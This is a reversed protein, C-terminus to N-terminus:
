LVQEICLLAPGDSAFLASMAEDLQGFGGDGTVAVIPAEPAALWAGMAAPYRNELAGLTAGCRSLAVTRGDVVISRARGDDPVDAPNVKHWGNQAM